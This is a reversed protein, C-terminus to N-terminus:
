EAVTTSFGVFLVSFVSSHSCVKHPLAGTPLLKPCNIAASFAM